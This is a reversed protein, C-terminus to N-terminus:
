APCSGPEGPTDGGCECGGGHNPALCCWGGCELDKACANPCVPAGVEKRHRGDKCLPGCLTISTGTSAATIKEGLGGWTPRTRQITM